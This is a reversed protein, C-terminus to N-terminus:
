RVIITNNGPAGPGIAIIRAETPIEKAIDPIIIGGPTQQKEELRKVQVRGDLPRFSM